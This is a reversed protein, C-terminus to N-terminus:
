VVIQRPGREGHTLMTGAGVDAPAAPNADVCWAATRGLTTRTTLHRRPTPRSRIGKVPCGDYRFTHAGQHVGSDLPQREGPTTEAVLHSAM